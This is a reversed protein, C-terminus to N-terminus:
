YGLEIKCTVISEYGLSFLACFPHTLARKLLPESNRPYVIEIGPFNQIEWHIVKGEETLTFAFSLALNGCNVTLLFM